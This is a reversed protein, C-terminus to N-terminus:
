EADGQADRQEEAGVGVGFRAVVEVGNRHANGWM